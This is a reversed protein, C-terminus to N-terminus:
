KKQKVASNDTNNSEIRTLLNDIINFLGAIYSLNQQHIITKAMGSSLWNIYTDIQKESVNVANCAAVKISMIIYELLSLTGYIYM